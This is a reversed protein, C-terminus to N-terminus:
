RRAPRSRTWATRTRPRGMVASGLGDAPGHALALRRMPSATGDACGSSTSGVDPSTPSAYALYGNAHPTFSAGYSGMCAANFHNTPGDGDVSISAITCSVGGGGAM